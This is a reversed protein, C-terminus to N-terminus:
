VWDRPRTLVELLRAEESGPAPRHDYVWRVRPPLSMLISEIRGRTELGFLTGRDYVLNFEVYRGRRVEQWFRQAETFPLDKRRRVLPLYSPVFARGMDQVFAFQAALDGALHDFFVGGIGRSEDRHPLRFYEDCWTKFVPYREPGHPDAAAKLTQHFHRADEEFLYYPTLDSGGGFWAREGQEFYRFNAHTTPVLPSQPHLVLSLGAAFFARGQGGLREALSPELEGHVVSINVGGKEFVAGDELVRTRGGGGGPREWLDERFRAQGDAGEVASCIEDQLAAIFQPMQERLPTTM